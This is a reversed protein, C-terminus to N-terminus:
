VIRKISYIALREAIDEAWNAVNDIHDVFNRLHRKRSLDLDSGFIAKKLKMSVKDAEREFFRVKHNHDGVEDINGYFARSTLVLAEVAQVVIDTLTEFDANFEEPIDPKEIAFAWLTGEFRNLLQDLNEILGLVDGRSEPILTQVYLKTEIARRLNDAASEMKNVDQLKQEFKPTYGDSLYIKIAAKFMPSSEALKDLFEGIESELARSRRFLSISKTLEM